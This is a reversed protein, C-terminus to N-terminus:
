DSDRAECARVEEDSLPEPRPTILEFRGTRLDAQARFCEAYGPRRSGSTHWMASRASILTEPLLTWDNLDSSTSSRPTRFCGVRFAWAEPWSSSDSTNAWRGISRLKKLHDETRECSTRTITAGCGAAMRPFCCVNGRDFAETWVSLVRPLAPAVFVFTDGMTLNKRFAHSPNNPYSAFLRCLARAPVVKLGSTWTRVFM